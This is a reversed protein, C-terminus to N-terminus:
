PQFVKVSLIRVGSGNFQFKGEKVPRLVRAFETTEFVPRDTDGLFVTAKGDDYIIIVHLVGGEYRFPVKESELEDTDRRWHGLQATTQDKSALIMLFLRRLSYNNLLAQDTTKQCFDFRWNDNGEIPEIELELRFEGPTKVNWEILCDSKYDRDCYVCSGDCTWWGGARLWMITGFDAVLPRKRSLGLRSLAEQKAWAAYSHEGDSLKVRSELGELEKVFVDYNKADFIEHLRRMENGNPGSIGSWITGWTSFDQFLSWNGSSYHYGREKGYAEAANKWDGKVSYALACAFCSMQRIYWFANRNEIQPECVEIIKDAVEPNKVLYEKQQGGEDVVSKLVSYAYFFPIMTDHRKTEYCREAFARMKAISGCWRPYCNYWLYKDLVNDYDLLATTTESFLGDSFPGLMVYGYAAEPYGHLERARRFAANCAKGHEHFGKWGAETVSSAWSGGREEWASDSEYRIRWLLKLWEDVSAAEIAPLMAKDSFNGRNSRLTWFVCRMDEGVFQESELWKVVSATIDDGCVFARVMGAFAKKATRDLIATLEEKRKFNLYGDCDWSWDIAEALVKREEETAKGEPDMQGWLFPNLKKDRFTGCTEIAMNTRVNASWDKLMDDFREEECSFLVEADDDRYRRPTLLKDFSFAMAGEIGCLVVAVLGIGTKGFSVNDMKRDGCNYGKIKVNTTEVVRGTLPIGFCGREM